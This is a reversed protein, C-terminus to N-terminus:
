PQEAMLRILAEGGDDDDDDVNGEGDIKVDHDLQQLLIRKAKSADGHAKMVSVAALKARTSDGAFTKLWASTSTPFRETVKKWIEDVNEM